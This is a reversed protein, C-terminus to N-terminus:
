HNQYQMLIVWERLKPDDGLKHGENILESEETEVYLPRFTKVM